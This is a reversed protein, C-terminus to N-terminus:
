RSVGEPLSPEVAYIPWNDFSQGNISIAKTGVTKRGRCSVTKLVDLSWVRWRSGHKAEIREIVGEQEICRSSCRKREMDASLDQPLRHYGSM